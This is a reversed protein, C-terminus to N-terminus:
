ERGEVIEKFGERNNVIFIMLQDLYPTLKKILIEDTELDEKKMFLALLSSYVYEIAEFIQIDKLGYQNQYEEVFALIDDSHKDLGDFHVRIINSM